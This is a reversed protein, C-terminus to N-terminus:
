YVVVKYGRNNVRVVYVGKTLNENKLKVGHLNYVEVKSADDSYIIRGNIAYPQSNKADLNADYVMDVSSIVSLPQIDFLYSKTDVLADLGPQNALVIVRQNENYKLYQNTAINILAFKLGKFTIVPRMDFSIPSYGLTRVNSGVASLKLTPLSKNIVYFKGDAQREFKFSFRNDSAIYPEQELYNYQDPIFLYQNTQENLTQGWTGSIHRKLVFWNEVKKDPTSSLKTFITKYVINIADVLSMANANFLATSQSDDIESVRQRLNEIEHVEVFSEYGKMANLMMNGQYKLFFANPLEFFFTCNDDIKFYNNVITGNTLVHLGKVTSTNGEFAYGAVGYFYSRSVNKKLLLSNSLKNASFTINTGALNNLDIYGLAKNRLIVSGAGNSEITWLLSDNYAMFGTGIIWKDANKIPRLFNSLTCTARETRIFYWKGDDVAPLTGNNSTYTPVPITAPSQTVTFGKQNGDKLRFSITASRNATTSNRYAYVSNVSNHLVQREGRGNTIYSDGGWWSGDLDGIVRINHSNEEGPITVANNEDVEPMWFASASSTGRQVLYAKKTVAGPATLTITANRQSFVYNQTTQLRLIGNVYDKTLTLWSVNSVAEWLNSNSSNTEIKWEITQADKSVLEPYEVANVYPEDDFVLDFVLQNNEIRINNLSFGAKTGDSLALRPTSQQNLSINKFLINNENDRLYFLEFPRPNNDGRANGRACPNVLSVVLGEDNHWWEFTKHRSRYELVFYETSSKPSNIRFAVNEPTASFLSNLRYTGNKHLVKVDDNSLFGLRSWIIYAGYTNSAGTMMNWANVPDGFLNRYRFRQESNNNNDYVDWTRLNHGVEHKFIGNAQVNKWADANTVSFKDIGLGNIKLISSNNHPIGGAWNGGYSEIKFPSSLTPAIYSIIDVKADGDGDLKVDAPLNDNLFKIYRETLKWIRENKEADTTFGNPNSSSYAAYYGQPMTDYYYPITDSNARKVYVFEYDLKGFSSAKLFSKFSFSHEDPDNMMKDFGSLSVDFNTHGQLRVFAGLHYKKQVVVQSKSAVSLMVFMGIMLLRITNKM